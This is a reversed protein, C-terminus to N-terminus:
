GGAEQPASAHQADARRRPVWGPRPVASLLRQTYPDQPDDLVAATRGEEVVRGRHMVVCDDSIQRVVGLDHSIFLYAVGTETRLDALLNIIQAQVSVDLAAVAEDLILLRPELALARAIAARQRQGGSLARPRAGGQRKDLGVQDLLQAVRERRRDADWPFHARLLEEIAAEITQKPDLSTYPDQFVMQVQRARTKRAGRGARSAEVPDGDLIIRGSTSAELGAVMRAVTTKGSGSEGVVALSGGPPLAFSVDDVAVLEGAPEGASTRVPFVKRLSDLRLLESM